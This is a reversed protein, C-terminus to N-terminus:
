GGDGGTPPRDGAPRTGRPGRRRRRGALPLHLVAAELVGRLRDPPAPPPAAARWAERAQRELWRIYQRTGGARRVVAERALAHLLRGAGPRLWGRRDAMDAPLRLYCPLADVLSAHRALAHVDCSREGGPVLGMGQLM